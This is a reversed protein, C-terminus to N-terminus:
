YYTIIVAGNAGAGGGTGSNGTSGQGGTGYGVANRGAIAVGGAGGGSGSTGISGTTNVDTGGAAPGGIGGAGNNPPPSGSANYSGGFGGNATMRSLTYTLSSVSTNGGPEGAGGGGAGAALGIVVNATKGVQFLVNAATRCYGGSGGGGGRLTTYGDGGRGGAGWAEFFAGSMGQPITETFTGPVVYTSIDPFSGENEVVGICAGGTSAGGVAIHKWNILGGVTTVPSTRNTTTGDGLGGVLNAGWTWLTGDSKIAASINTAASIEKWTTGGGSVTAPSSRSSGAVGLEGSTNQGWTWLTGDYKVAVAHEDGCAVDKWTTGGGAVTQPSSRATTSGDGLQGRLNGGWTWLTRDTKIAAAFASGATTINCIVVKDWTDATGVQVPSSRNTTTGDGLQGSSNLGWTWLTGTNKVAASSDGGAAAHKWSDGTADSATVAPSSRNTTTNTGLQGSSNRGWTWLTGDNKVAIMHATSTAVEDWNTGGVSTTGPSSRSTTTNDGLVGYTARGWTWLTGDARIAAATRAKCDIFEWQTLGMRGVTAPSSRSAATTGAGPDGLGFDLNTGWSYLGGSSFYERRMLINALDVDSFGLTTNSNTYRVPTVPM